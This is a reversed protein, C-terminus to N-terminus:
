GTDVARKDSLQLSAFLKQLQLPVCESAKGDTSENYKWRYLAARFEPTMFLSQLLSNMYCTAGQNFLGAPKKAPEAPTDSDVNFSSEGNGKNYSNRVFPVIAMYDMEM